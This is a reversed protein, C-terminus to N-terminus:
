KLTAAVANGRLREPDFWHSQGRTYLLPRVPNVDVRFIATSM